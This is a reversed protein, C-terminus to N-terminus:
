QFYAMDIAALLLFAILAIVGCIIKITLILTHKM